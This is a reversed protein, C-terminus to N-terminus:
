QLTPNNEKQVKAAKEIPKQETKGGVEKEKIEAVTKKKMELVESPKTTLLQHEEESAVVYMAVHTPGAFFLGHGIDASLLLNKEGESLYFVEAVKDIAAPSQKMLVQISSNQIIAKGFRSELFDEVDQTITTLGLYYKRSRKAIGYLFTASDPHKMLYWAEDVVLIRRAMEKKVKNWIFDLIIFMIGPRLETELEKIGFVTFPNTFEVNSKQNFIGALSGKVYRELRNALTKAEKEEMGVLTKFLDEMLPAEKDQTAPDQTIGKQKYTSILARDLIADEDSTMEGMIIRLLTHLSLIKQGLHDEGEEEIAALDFPNIKTKSQFSIDVYEGEVTDCLAQYENEPDIVLVETGFMLSRLIEAKVCYSKGSGAKGFVVENANEMSFRDFLILSDNHENIGYLIGKNASLESSAFPFTTALCTTDMNRTIMLRDYCTPLTTLFGQEMQLTAPKAIIMLSGLTAEVEESISKLEKTSDAPITIYLGFQFFREAGKALQKQLKKADELAIQTNVNPIRGRQIDIQIEAEMEGIKRRLDDLIGKGEIPYIFMSVELSNDFNILPALWNASVFRPYSAAFLTKFYTENIKLYNFDIEIAPPAIIDKISTIGKSFELAPKDSKQKESQKTKKLFPLNLKM